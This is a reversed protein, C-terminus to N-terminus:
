RRSAVAKKEDPMKEIRSDVEEKLSAKEVVDTKGNKEM